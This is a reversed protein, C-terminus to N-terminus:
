RVKPHTSRSLLSAALRVGASLAHEGDLTLKDAEDLLRKEIDARENEAGELYRTCRKGDRAHFCLSEGGSSDSDRRNVREFGRKELEKAAEPVFNPSDLEAEAQGTMIIDERVEAHTPETSACDSALAAPLADLANYLRIVAAHKTRGHGAPLTETERMAVAAAVVEYLEPAVDVVARERRLKEDSARTRVVHCETCVLEYDQASHECYYGKTRDTPQAENPRQEEANCPGCESQGREVHPCGAESSRHNKETTV